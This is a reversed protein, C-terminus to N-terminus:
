TKRRARTIGAKLVDGVKDTAAQSNADFAPRFFPRAAMKVTGFELFKGWFAHGASISFEFYGGSNMDSRLAKGIGRVKINDRLHGYDMVVLEGSKNRRLKAKGPGVPAASVIAEKLLNTGARAARNGLRVVVDESLARLAAALEEGGEVSLATGNMTM